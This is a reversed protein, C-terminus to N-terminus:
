SLIFNTEKEKSNRMLNYTIVRPTGHGVPVHPGRRSVLVLAGLAIFIVITAGSLESIM